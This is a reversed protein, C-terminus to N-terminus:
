HTKDIGNEIETVQEIVKKINYESVGLERLIRKLCKDCIVWENNYDGCNMCTDDEHPEEM